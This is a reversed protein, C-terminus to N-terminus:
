ISKDKETIKPIKITVKTGHGYNSQFSLGYNEGYLLKIRKNINKLGYGSGKASSLNNSLLLHLKDEKIGIGDDAIILVIDSNTSYGLISIIGNGEGKGLIGHNIANELIPQLTIKPILYASVEEDVNIRLSIRDNYRMNQINVYLNSHQLEDKISVLDKGKNLSLKYFKALTNVAVSIEKNMKKYSMWNIMDLTNYLFHPNIQSQLAKLEANKVSKGLKYQDEILISMKGVMYNYSDILEGLEDNSDNEIYHELNGSQVSHMESIVKSLRKNISNVFYFALAISTGGCVILILSLYIRQSNIEAIVSAEPLITVLHWDTKNISSSKIYFKELNHSTTIFNNTNSYNQIKDLDTIFEINDTNESSCIIIGESNIVYSITNPLSNIKNIIDEILTKNFNLKLYGIDESFNDPSKVTKFLSLYDSSENYNNFYNSPGWVFRSNTSNIINIAKSNNLSDMSFIHKNDNSYIFDNNVYLSINSVDSDNEYASLFLRLYALDGIQNSLLYSNPDNRLIDTINEDIALSNSIDFIRYIKYTLFDISQDFAQKTSELINSEIIQSM